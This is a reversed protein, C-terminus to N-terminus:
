PVAWWVLSKWIVFDSFGANLGLILLAVSIMAVESSTSVLIREKHDSYRCSQSTSKSLMSRMENDEDQDILRVSILTVLPSLCKSVPLM